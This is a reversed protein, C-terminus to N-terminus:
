AKDKVTLYLSTLKKAMTDIAYHEEVMTRAKTIRGEREVLAFGQSISDGLSHGPGVLIGTDGQDVFTSPGGTSPAVVVLGTALAEILALGFEEKPAGDVYIGGSAWYGPQGMMTAVMLQATDARPRGGLMILGARRPDNIPVVNDIAQMVTTEVISPNNLDGGVLVLNCTNHLSQDAAWSTVIRAMGKIPHFRGVSLLLPLHRRTPCIREALESIVSHDTTQDIHSYNLAAEHILNIDIGEAITVSKQTDPSLDKRIDQLLLACKPQPFLAVHSATRAMKELMRARFWLNSQADADLLAEQTLQQGAKLAQVTNQPDPAFSFCMPIDLVHAIDSAAFTGADLMRLHILDVGGFDGLCRKISRKLQPLYEWANTSTMPRLSSGATIIRFPQPSVDSSSLDNIADEISGLGITLVQSVAPQRTLADGLSVLLSAVGGTDGCGGNSLSKDMQALVLQCVRLGNDVSTSSTHQQVKQDHIALTAYAGIDNDQKALQNLLVSFTGARVGLASIASIRVPVSEKTDAAIQSLLQTVAEGDLVGLLDVLRARVLGDADTSLTNMVSQTILQPQSDAWKELTNHAHMTDIGGVGLQQLLPTLASEVPHKNALRWTAQRRVSAQKHSLCNILLKTADELHMQAASEIAALSALPGSEAMATLDNLFHHSNPNNKAFRALHSSRSLMAEFDVRKTAQNLEEILISGMSAQSPQVTNTPQYGTNQQQM